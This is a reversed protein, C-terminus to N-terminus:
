FYRLNERLEYQENIIKIEPINKQYYYDKEILNVLEKKIDLSMENNLVSLINRINNISLCLPKKKTKCFNLIYVIENINLKILRNNIKESLFESQKQEKEMIEKLYIVEDELNEIMSLLFAINKYEENKFESKYVKMVKKAPYKKIFIKKLNILNKGELRYYLNKIINLDCKIEENLLFEIYKELVEKNYGMNENNIEINRFLKFLLEKNKEEALKINILNLVICKDEKGVLNFLNESINKTEKIVKLVSSEININLFEKKIYSDNTIKKLKNNKFEEILLSKNNNLCMDTLIIEVVKDKLVIKIIEELFDNNIKSNECLNDLMNLLKKNDEENIFYKLKSVIINGDKDINQNIEKIIKGNVSININIIYKILGSNEKLKNILIFANLYSLSKDIFGLSKNKITHHFHDNKEKM